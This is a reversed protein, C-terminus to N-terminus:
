NKPSPMTQPCTVAEGHALTAWHGLHLSGSAKKLAANMKAIHSERNFKAAIMKAFLVQLLLFM